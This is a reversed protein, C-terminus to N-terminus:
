VPTRNKNVMVYVENIAHIVSRSIETQMAAKQSNTSYTGTLEQAMPVLRSASGRMAMITNESRELLENVTSWLNGLSDKGPIPGRSTLNIKDADLIAKFCYEAADLRKKLTRKFFFYAIAVIVVNELFMIIAASLDPM